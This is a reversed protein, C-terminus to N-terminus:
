LTMGKDAALAAIEPITLDKTGMRVNLGNTFILDSVPKDLKEILSFFIPMLEDPLLLPLNDRVTDIWGYLFNSHGYPVGEMSFFFDRAAQEDYKGAAEDTLPLYVLQQHDAQYAEIVQRWPTRKIAPETSEVIFLGDEFWLFQQIHAFPGGAGYTILATIPTPRNSGLIDGSRITSEDLWVIEQNQRETFTMNMAKEMFAM